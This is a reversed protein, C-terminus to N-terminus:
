SLFLIINPLALDDIDGTCIYNDPLKQCLTVNIKKDAYYYVKKYATLKNLFSKIMIWIKQVM